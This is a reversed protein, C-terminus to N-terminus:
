DNLIDEIQKQRYEALPILYNSLISMNGFSDARYFYEKRNNEAIFFVDDMFYGTVCGSYVKDKCYIIETGYAYQRYFTKICLYKEM